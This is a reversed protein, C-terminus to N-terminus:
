GEMNYCRCRLIYTGIMSSPNINEWHANLIVCQEGEQPNCDSGDFTSMQGIDGTGRNVFEDRYDGILSPPGPGITFYLIAVLAVAGILCVGVTTSANM